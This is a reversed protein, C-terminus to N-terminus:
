SPRSTAEKGCFRDAASAAAEDKSLSLILNIKNPSALFVADEHQAQRLVRYPLAASGPCQGGSEM